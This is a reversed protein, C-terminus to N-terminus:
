EQIMIATIHRLNLLFQGAVRRTPKHEESVIAVLGSESDVQIAELDKIYYVGTHEGEPCARIDWFVHVKM